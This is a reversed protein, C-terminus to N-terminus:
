SKPVFQNLRTDVGEIHNVIWDMLTVFTDNALALSMGGTQWKEYFAGFRRLFDAHDRKNEEAAPCRYKGMFEEELKFHWQAYFQLFDLIRGAEVRKESEGRSMVAYFDNFRAFIERHHHDLSPVGTSLGEHWNLM